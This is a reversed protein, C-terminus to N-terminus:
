NYADQPHPGRTNGVGCMMSLCMKRPPSSNRVSQERLVDRKGGSLFAFYFNFFFTYFLSFNYCYRIQVSLTECM